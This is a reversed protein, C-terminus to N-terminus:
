WEYTGRNERPLVRVHGTAEGLGLVARQYVLLTATDDYFERQVLLVKDGEPRALLERDREEILTMGFYEKAKVAGREVGRSKIKEDLEYEWEAEALEEPQLLSMPAVLHNIKTPRHYADTWRGIAYALRYEDKLYRSDRPFLDAFFPDTHPYTYGSEVLEFFIGPGYPEGLEALAAADLDDDNSMQDDHDSV